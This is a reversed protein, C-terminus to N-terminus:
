SLKDNTRPIGPNINVSNGARGRNDSYRRRIPPNKTPSAQSPKQQQQEAATARQSQIEIKDIEALSSSNTM